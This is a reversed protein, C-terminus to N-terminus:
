QSGGKLYTVDMGNPCISDLVGDANFDAFHPHVCGQIPFGYIQNPSDQTWDTVSAILTFRPSVVTGTNEFVKFELSDMSVGDWRHNIWADFDGDNDMDGFAIYNTGRVPILGFPEPTIAESFQPSNADGTNECYGYHSSDMEGGKEGIFLDLDGDADIDVFAVFNEDNIGDSGIWDGTCHYYTLLQDNSQYVPTENSGINEEYWFKIPDSYEAGANAIADLDGDGDLDQLIRYNSKRSFQAYHTPSSFEPTNISSVNKYVWAEDDSLAVVDLDGDMDADLAMVSLVVDTVVGLKVGLPTLEDSNTDQNTQDGDTEVPDPTPTPETNTGDDSQSDDSDVPDGTQGDSNSSGNNCGVLMAIAVTGILRKSRRIAEALPTMKRIVVIENKIM